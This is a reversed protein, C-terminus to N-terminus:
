ALVNVLSGRPGSSKSTSDTQNSNQPKSVITDPILEAQAPRGREIKKTERTQEKTDPRNQETAKRAQTVSTTSTQTQGSSNIIM